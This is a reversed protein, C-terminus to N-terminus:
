IETIIFHYKLFLPKSSTPKLFSSSIYGKYVKKFVDLSSEQYVRAYVKQPKNHRLVAFLISLNILM